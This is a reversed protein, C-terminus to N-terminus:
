EVVQWDTLQRTVDDASLPHQTLPPEMEAVLEPHTIAQWATEVETELAQLWPPVELGVGSPEQTLETCEQELVAFYSEDDPTTKGALAARRMAELSPRVLARVRDITLPRVFREGIRDAITPLRMGYKAPLEALRKELSDAVSSTRDAVARRWMEAAESRSRRVLIEHALLVPKLQWAVREYQARVRLFDLLTYLMEGRDSQTTTNNYDRYEGYNEVIAELVLTLRKVADARPIEKDLERLLQFADEQEPDEFLKDFWADVGGHLIARLNGLNLFQQTFLDHGYRQIFECISNWAKEDLMRELVTLRLTRSHSLWEHLLSETLQELSDVLDTDPLDSSATPPVPWSRSVEVLTEVLSKYGVEFLRDFETVANAGVPHDHEMMRAAQILQCTEALMGRRPLLRLLERITHQVRQAEIVKRPDGGRSPSVYLVAQTRLHTVFQPWQANVAGEDGRLVAQLLRTAHDPVASKGAARMLRAANATEVTTAVIQDLLVLKVGRRRDFELLSDRSATPSPIRRGNVAALLELLKAENEEAQPLWRDVFEDDILEGGKAAIAASAASRWLVAVTGLFELRGALRRSEADLEYDSAPSPGAELMDADIGDSTSDRYVMEEYAAAFLDEDGTEGEDEDDDGGAPVDDLTEKVFTNDLSLDPVTWFVDANAELSDFFRRLLKGRDLPVGPGTASGRKQQPALSSEPVATEVRCLEALWRRALQHFSFEGQELSISEAQSLWQMLLALSAVFDRKALLADVVLGYARPSHFQQVHNRWFAIDGAATGGQHWAKMADAVQLASVYADAARFSELDEVTTSAFEDWWRALEALSRSIREQLDTEDRAAAESWLRAQLAFIDGVLEILQPVRHDPVSNEPAPFLSFQGQFGLMSWPDVMAGCEIARHLLDEMEEVLEAATDLEGREIALGATSLRCRIECIMRASAVPVIAAQRRAADPYGMRAFLIALHVHELQSARLRALFHNLHQRAGALPQRHKQVEARLHEGRKGSSKEVLQQYFEDRYAAIKPLLNGLTVSSDHADPGAGSTGAAMLITGALVAAADFLLEDREAPAGNSVRALLGDLTMQQVVFRRYFGRDGIHHPDWQGFHYNARKNVPHDFDYARPDVCLEDLLEPDFHAAHLIDPPAARLLTLTEAILREYRGVSVGASRVYLPIPAVWEHEYPEMRQSTRLTPVPRHGLFDNLEDLTGDVLRDLEDWPSGLRLLIQMARGLLFPRWLEVDTQHFLLDRHHERYAPIVQQFTLEIVARAQEINRFAPMTEALRELRDGLCSAINKLLDCKNAGSNTTRYLKNLNALFQPDDAGSSFNLYGLLEDLSRALDHQGAPKAM